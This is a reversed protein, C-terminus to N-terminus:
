GQFTSELMLDVNTQNTQGGLGTLVQWFYKVYHYFTSRGLGLGKASGSEEMQYM